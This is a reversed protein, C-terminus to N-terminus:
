VMAETLVQEIPMDNLYLGEIVYNGAKVKVQLYMRDTEALDRQLREAEPAMAENMYYRDLSIDKVFAAGDPKEESWGTIVAYGESDRAL